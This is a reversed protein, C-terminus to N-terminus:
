SREGREKEKSCGKRGRRSNIARSWNPESGAGIRQSRMEEPESEAGDRCSRRRRRRNIKEHLPFSSITASMFIITTPDDAHPFHDLPRNMKVAVLTKDLTEM